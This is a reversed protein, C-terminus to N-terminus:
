LAMTSLYGDGLTHTCHSIPAKMEALTGHFVDHFLETSVSLFRESLAQSILRM